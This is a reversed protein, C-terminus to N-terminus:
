LCTEGPYYLETGPNGGQGHCFGNPDDETTDGACLGYINLVMFTPDDVSGYCPTAFEPTVTDLNMTAGAPIMAFVLAPLLVTYSSFTPTVFLSISDGYAVNEAVKDPTITRFNIQDTEAPWLYVDMAQPRIDQLLNLINLPWQVDPATTTLPFFSMDPGNVEHLVNSVMSTTNVALDFELTDRSADEIVLTATYHGAPLNMWCAGENGSPVRLHLDAGDLLMEYASEPDFKFFRTRLTAKDAVPQWSDNQAAHSTCADMYIDPTTDDNDDDTDNDDDPSSDDNDVPSDDDSGTCDCKCCDCDDERSCGLFFLFALLAACVLVYIILYRM